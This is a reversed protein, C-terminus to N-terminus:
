KVLRCKFHLSRPLGVTGQEGTEMDFVVWCGENSDPEVAAWLRVRRGVRRRAHALPTAEWVQGAEVHRRM